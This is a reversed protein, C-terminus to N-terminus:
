GCVCGFETANEKESNKWLMNKCTWCAFGQWINKTKIVFITEITLSLIQFGWWQKFNNGKLIYLAINSRCNKCQIPNYEHFIYLIYKHHNCKMASVRICDTARIFPLFFFRFFNVQFWNQNAVVRYLAFWLSRSRM